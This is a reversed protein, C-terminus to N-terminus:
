RRESSGVSRALFGENAIERAGGALGDTGMGIRGRTLLADISYAGPGTLLLTVAAAAYFLNKEFTLQPTSSIWVMGHHPLVFTMVAGLMDLAILLAAFPTLAGFILLLGGGLEAVIVALQVLVPLGAMGIAAAWTVPHAAKILGYQVFAFGIIIRLVFLGASVRGAVAPPKLLALM